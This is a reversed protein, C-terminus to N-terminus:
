VKNSTSKNLLYTLGWAQCIAVTILCIIKLIAAWKIRDCNRESIDRHIKERRKFFHLNRNVNEVQRSLQRLSVEFPEIEDDLVLSDTNREESKIEFSVSNQNSDLSKFCLRHVGLSPKKVSFKGESSEPDSIYEIVSKPDYMTVQVKKESLGSVMYAGWLEKSKKVHHGICSESNGNLQFFLSQSLQLLVLLWM